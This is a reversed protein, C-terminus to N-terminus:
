SAGNSGGLLAPNVRVLKRRGDDVERIRGAEALEALAADLGARGRVPNPGRNQITRREVERVGERRCFDVLWADLRRAATLERPAAVDGLFARAQYLHWGVIRAAATVAAVDIQGAAGHAYLHFLAALRAVNDAAKSAVDRVEAMDGGPRLETEVDDHFRVWVARAAETLTLVPPTLAGTDDPQVPLNLLERLRAAFAPLYRWDPAEKFLRGGQTSEPAAILFRAAFGNGRALGKTGEMFQRVTEPQAALGMTLRVGALTFSESTRREVRHSGGDWLANLLSMSRMVSDRGMGHGGFVVGAESSMVGGSPWGHALAWALAEPTADAHVLRPVRPAQPCNAEESMLDCEAGTSDEAKQAAQRIRGKIGARREDWAAYRAAHEALEPKAREAQDCEWERVPALFLGDCTTKREGSEAVALIYLSIPGKLRDARQVDALAQAALSLASLASCAALAPPCQVFGVVEAVAEGIGGPLADLPYPTVCDAVTLPMPIPWGGSDAAAANLACPQGPLGDPVRAGGIAREVAELGRHQALDNFDTADDPRDAGFDPVALLGGVARAAEAAKTVGPNGETRSDDDACLVLRSAPFRDRLARAVAALNGANFAVAVPLGTAEHITAGTAFGEAICLEVAGDPDGIDFHGGAVRGGLLFRKEGDVDIYQLSVIESGVCVPLVLRGDETIRAGHPKIGKRTLYRHDAPAPEAAQWTADATTAAEAHRRAEEAERERRMAAVRERHATEEAPTLTRGIDARWTESYGTRWDGFAGAAIGDGYMVYWGADDNRKDNSAFRHLNGDNHIEDPPHLGAASIAQRFQEVASVGAVPVKTTSIM